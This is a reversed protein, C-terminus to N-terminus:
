ALKDDEKIRIVQRANAVTIVGRKQVVQCITPKNLLKPKYQQKYKYYTTKQKRVQM